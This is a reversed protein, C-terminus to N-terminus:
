RQSLSGTVDFGMAQWEAWTKFSGWLLLPNNIDPVEYRNNEFRNNKSNSLYPDITVTGAPCAGWSFMNNISGARTGVRILNDHALNNTLDPDWWWTQEVSQCNVFYAIGRWNDELINHHINAGSSTSIFIGHEGNRRLTNNRMEVTLSLEWHIGSWANDESVNGDILSNAGEGDNWIGFGENHHVWNNIWDLRLTNQGKQQTGGYAIENNQMLGARTEGPARVWQQFAYNGSNPEKNNHHLKNNLGRPAIGLVFGFQSNYIDSNEITWAECSEVAYVGKKPMNRIVLNRITVNDVNENGFCRFAAAGEDVTAWTSGDLIAGLEGVFTDGTKPLVSGAVAHVGAKLCFTTGAPAANIASQLGQGPFISVANAPCTISAPPGRDGTPPPPPPPPPGENLVVRVNVPAAPQNQASVIFSATHEGAQLTSTLFSLTLTGTNTGSRPTVTLWSATPDSVTWKLAGKGANRIQVSQNPPATGVTGTLDLQQPTVSLIAQRGSAQALALGNVLFIFSLVLYHVKAHM